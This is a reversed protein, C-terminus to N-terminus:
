KKYEYCKTITMIYKCQCFLIGKKLFFFLPVTINTLLSRILSLLNNGEREKEAWTLSLPDDEVQTSGSCNKKALFHDMMGSDNQSIPIYATLAYLAM